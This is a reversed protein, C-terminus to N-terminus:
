LLNLSNFAQIPKKFVECEKAKLQNGFALL